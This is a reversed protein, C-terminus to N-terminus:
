RSFKAKFTTMERSFQCSDVLEKSALGSAIRANEQERLEQIVQYLSVKALINATVQRYGEAV